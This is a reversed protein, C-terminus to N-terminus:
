GLGLLEREARLWDDSASGGQGSEFIEFARQQIAGFAVIREVTLTPETLDDHAARELDTAVHARLSFDGGKRDEFLEIPLVAQTIDPNDVLRLVRDGSIFGGKFEVRTGHRVQLFLREHNIDPFINGSVIFNPQNPMCYVFPRGCGHAPEDGELTLLGSCVQFSSIGRVAAPPM